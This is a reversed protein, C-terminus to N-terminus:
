LIYVGLLLSVFVLNIGIVYCLGMLHTTDKKKSVMYCLYSLLGLFIPWVVFGNSIKLYDPALLLTKNFYSSLFVIQTILYTIFAFPVVWWSNNAEIRQGDVFILVGYVIGPPFIWVMAFFLILIASFINTISEFVAMKYDNKNSANVKEVIDSDTTAALLSYKEGDYGFWAISSNNGNLRVPNMATTDSLSRRKAIFHGATNDTGLKKTSDLTAEYVNVNSKKRKTPGDATFLVSTGNLLSINYNRPPSTFDGEVNWHTAEYKVSNDITFPLYYPIYTRVGQVISMTGYMILGNNQNVDIDIDDLRETSSLNIVGISIQKDQHLLSLKQTFESDNQLVLIDETNKSILLKSIPYDFTSILNSKKSVQDFRYLNKDVAFIILDNKGALATVGESIKLNEGDYFYLESSKQYVMQGNKFWFPSSIDGSVPLTEQKKVKLKNNVSIHVTETGTPFLIDTVGNHELNFIKVPYKSDTKLNIPRSWGKTPITLEINLNNLFLLGLLIISILIPIIKASKKM